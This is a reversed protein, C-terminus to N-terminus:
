SLVNITNDVVHFFKFHEKYKTFNQQKLDIDTIWVQCKVDVITELLKEQYYVDLHSMIDDLLVIPYEGMNQKALVSSLILSLLLIKQEGTSCSSAILNKELHFIQVNDNHVGFNVLNTSSDKLRNKHLYKKYNEIADKDNLLDSVQSQIEIVAKFFSNSSSNESLVNRLIQLVSFRIQAIKIGNEAMVNELSSLWFNDVLNNRLLRSRDQKAKNYKIICSAYNTDFIHVIRDFFKLRESQSKLFIHDLQPILWIISIIKHLTIYSHNKNSILISRKANNKAIVIPYVSNQSHIQYSISWPSSSSSNQMSETNVGRIGTGKSLLSIAELINTKGAGNKGLLVVSKNSTDLEVSLYNRFDLLRLNKICSRYACLM